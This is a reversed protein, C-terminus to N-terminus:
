KTTFTSTCVFPYDCLAVRIIPENKLMNNKEEKRGGYVSSGGGDCGLRCGKKVKSVKEWWTWGARGLLKM